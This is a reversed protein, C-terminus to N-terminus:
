KLVFIEIENKLERGFGQSLKDSAFVRRGAQAIYPVRIGGWKSSTSKDSWEHSVVVAIHGTNEKTPKPNSWAVVVLRGDNALRQAEEFARPPDRAVKLATWNGSPDKSATSLRKFQDKAQGELEAVDHGTLQIAFDRVFDSCYTQNGKPQYKADAALTNAIREAEAKDFSESPKTGDGRNTDENSPNM